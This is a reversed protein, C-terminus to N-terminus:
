FIRVDAGLRLSGWRANDDDTPVSAEGRLYLGSNYAVERRVEM